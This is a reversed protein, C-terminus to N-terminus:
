SVLKLIGHLSDAVSLQRKLIWKQAGAIKQLGNIILNIAFSVKAILRSKM